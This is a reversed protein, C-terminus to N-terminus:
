VLKELVAKLAEPLPVPRRSQRDVYVHVFHGRAATLPAGVAFLGLEYRVSSSGLRAVRLGAEVVQPFALAAFYNCRTEAVLGITEGRQVDLVGHEILHANVVTDFWSYYVVNNVHGYADNDSWRTGISRFVRYASREDPQLKESDVSTM